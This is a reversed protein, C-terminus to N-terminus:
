ICELQLLTVTTARSGTNWNDSNIFVIVNRPQPPHEKKEKSEIAAASIIQRRFPVFVDDSSWRQPTEDNKLRQNLSWVTEVCPTLIQIKPTTKSNSRAWTHISNCSVIPRVLRRECQTQRMLPHSRVVPEGLLLNTLRERPLVVVNLDTDM